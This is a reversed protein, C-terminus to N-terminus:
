QRFSDFMLNEKYTQLQHFSSVINTKVDAPNKLEIVAVPLGNIFVIIDPRKTHKAGRISFQNIALFENREFNNFDFLRVFDGVTEGDRQFEVKIGDRLLRHFERNNHLLSPSNLNTIQQIADEVAVAPIEPNIEILKTRLRDRLIVQRYDTREAEPAEPAIDLGNKTIYGLEEFWSLVLNELQGENIKM